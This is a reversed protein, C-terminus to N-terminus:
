TPEQKQPKIQGEIEGEDQYHNMMTMMRAIMTMTTTTATTTTTHLTLIMTVQRILFFPAHPHFHQYLFAPHTHLHHLPLLHPLLANPAHACLASLPCSYRSCLAYQRATCVAIFCGCLSFMLYAIADVVYVCLNCFIQAGYCKFANMVQTCWVKSLSDVCCTDSLCKKCEGCM